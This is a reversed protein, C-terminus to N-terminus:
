NGYKELLLEIMLLGGVISVALKLCTLMMLVNFILEILNFKM